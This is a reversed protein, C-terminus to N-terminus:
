AVLMTPAAVADPDVPLCAPAFSYQTYASSKLSAVHLLLQELIGHAIGKAELCLPHRLWSLLDVRFIIRSADLLVSASENQKLAGARLLALYASAAGGDLGPCGWQDVALAPVVACWLDVRAPLM